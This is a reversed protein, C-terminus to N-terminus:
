SMLYQVFKDSQLYNVNIMGSEIDIKDIPEIYQEILKM